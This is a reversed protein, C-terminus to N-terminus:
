GGAEDFNAIAGKISHGHHFALWDLLSKGVLHQQVLYSMFPIRKPHTSIEHLIRPVRAEGYCIRLILEREQQEM